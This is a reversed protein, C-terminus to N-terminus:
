IIEKIKCFRLRKESAKLSTFIVLLKFGNNKDARCCLYVKYRLSANGLVMCNPRGNVLNWRTEASFGDLSVIWLIVSINLECTLKIRPLKKLIKTITFSEHM